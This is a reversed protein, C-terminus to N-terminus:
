LRAGIAAQAPALAPPTKKGTFFSITRERKAWVADIM